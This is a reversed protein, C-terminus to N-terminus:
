ALRIGRTDVRHKCGNKQCNRGQRLVFGCDLAQAILEGFSEISTICCCDRSQVGIIRDDQRRSALHHLTPTGNLCEPLASGLLNPLPFSVVTSTFGSPLSAALSIPVKVKRVFPDCRLLDGALIHHDPLLNSSLPLECGVDPIRVTAGTM